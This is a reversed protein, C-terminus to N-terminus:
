YPLVIFHANPGVAVFLCKMEYIRDGLSQFLGFKNEVLVSFTWVPKLLSYSELQQYPTFCGVSM